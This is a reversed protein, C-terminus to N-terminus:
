HSDSILQTINRMVPILSNTDKNETTTILLGGGFDAIVTYGALDKLVIQFVRSHGLPRIMQQANMHAARAWFAVEKADIDLPMTDAILVGDFGVVASGIVGKKDQLNGLMSKLDDFQEKAL